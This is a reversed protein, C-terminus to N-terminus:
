GDHNLWLRDDSAVFIAITKCLGTTLLIQRATWPHCLLTWIANNRSISLKEALRM